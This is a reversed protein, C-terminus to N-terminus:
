STQNPQTSKPTIEKMEMVDVCVLRVHPKKVHHLFASINCTVYKTRTVWKSNINNSTSIHYFPLFITVELASFIRM